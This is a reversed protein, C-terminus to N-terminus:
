EDRQPSNPDGYRPLAVAAALAASSMEVFAHLIETNGVSHSGTSPIKLHVRNYVPATCIYYSLRCLFSVTPSFYRAAGLLQVRTM